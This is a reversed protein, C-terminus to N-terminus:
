ENDVVEMELWVKMMTRCTKGDNKCLENVPCGYCAMIDELLGAMSDTSACLKEFNTM